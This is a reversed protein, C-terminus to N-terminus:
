QMRSLGALERRGRATGYRLPSCGVVLAELKWLLRKVWDKISDGGRATRAVEKKQALM